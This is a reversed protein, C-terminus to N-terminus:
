KFGICSNRLGSKGMGKTCRLQRYPRQVREDRVTAQWVAQPAGADLADDAHVDVAVRM